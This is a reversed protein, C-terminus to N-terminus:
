LHARINQSSLRRNREVEKCELISEESYQATPCTEERTLVKKVYNQVYKIPGDAGLGRACGWTCKGSTCTPIYMQQMRLVSPKRLEWPDMKARTIHRIQKWHVLSATSLHASLGIIKSAVTRLDLLFAKAGIKVPASKSNIAMDRVAEALELQAVLRYSDHKVTRNVDESSPIHVLSAPWFISECDNGPSFALYKLIDQTSISSSSLGKHGSQSELHQLHKSLTLFLAKLQLRHYNVENATNLFYTGARSTLLYKAEEESVRLSAGASTDIMSRIAKLILAEPCPSSKMRKQDVYMGGIFKMGTLVHYVVSSMLRFLKNSYIEPRIKGEKALNLLIERRVSLFKMKERGMDDAKSVWRNVRPDSSFLNEDTAFLPNQAKVSLLEYKEQGNALVDLKPHRKSRIEDVLATYGYKIAYIDYIGPADMNNGGFVPNLPDSTDLSDPYDMISINGAWSSIFNHRLGLTHGVEHVVTSLIDKLVDPHNADLLPIHKDKRLAELSYSSASRVFSSFGLLVHAVLIEGSRFDTVSPGYGLIPILPDTMFIANWRADGPSYSDPFEADDKTYCKVPDNGVGAAKFAKNWSLVGAKIPSWFLRPVAPDILYVIENNRRSLNWKNIVFEKIGVSKEGGVTIQTSFYGVRRDVRRPTMPYEPLLCFAITFHITKNAQSKLPEMTNPQWSMALFFNIPYAKVERIMSRQGMGHGRKRLYASFATLWSTIDILTVKKKADTIIPQFVRVVGSRMGKTDQDYISSALDSHPLSAQAEILILAKGGPAKVFKLGTQRPTADFMDPMSGEVGRITLQPFFIRDIKNWHVAMLVQNMDERVYLDQFSQKRRFKKGFKKEAMRIWEEVSKPPGKQKKKRNEAKKMKKNSNMDKKKPTAGKEAKAVGNRELSAVARPM